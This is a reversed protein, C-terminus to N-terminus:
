EEEDTVEIIRIDIRFYFARGCNPCHNLLTDDDYISIIFDWASFKIGCICRTIPLCEEDNWSFEIKSTVDVKKKVM